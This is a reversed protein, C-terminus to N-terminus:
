TRDIKNSLIPIEPMQVKHRSNIVKNRIMNIEDDSIELVNRIEKNTLDEDIIMYLLNDLLEYSLGIEDEDTQGPWM